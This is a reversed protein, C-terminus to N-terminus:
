SEKTEKDSLRRLADVCYGVQYICDALGDHANSRVNDTKDYRLGALHVLTNIDRFKKYRLLELGLKIYAQQLMVFDFQHSWMCEAKFAFSHYKELAKKVPLIEGSLFTRNTENLWFKVAGPDIVFGKKFSDEMSINVSFKDGIEGTKRDFYCAGIQTIMGYVGTGMAEIDTMLDIM